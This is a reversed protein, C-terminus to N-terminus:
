FIARAGLVVAMVVAAIGITWLLVRFMAAEDRLPDLMRDWWPREPDGTTM